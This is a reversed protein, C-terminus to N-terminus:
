FLAWLRTCLPGGPSAAADEVSCYITYVVIPLALSAFLHIRFRVMWHPVPLPKVKFRLSALKIVLLVTAMITWAALFGLFSIVAVGLLDAVFLNQLSSALKWGVLPAFGVLVVGVVLPFRLFYLYQLLPARRQTWLVFAILVLSALFLINYSLM